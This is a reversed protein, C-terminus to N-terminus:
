ENNKIRKTLNINKILFIIILIIPLVQLKFRITTGLNGQSPIVYFMLWAVLIFFLIKLPKSYFILKLNFLIYKLFLYLLITNEIASLLAFPNRVEYLMPRFLATFSNPIFYYLYDSFNNITNTEVASNGHSFGKSVMNMTSFVQDFSAINFMKMFEHLLIYIFPLLIILILINKISNLKTYYLGMGVVMILPYWSRIFSALFIALIIMFIYLVKVKYLLKLNFYIFISMVFLNLPDKGLISSWFLLSPLLFIWYIFSDQKFNIQINENIVILLYSKYFIILAFFGILSDKMKLSYYSDGVIYSFIYNFHMINNSSQVGFPHAQINYLAETYYLASDLVRGYEQLIMIFLTVFGKIIWFILYKPLFLAIFFTFIIYVLLGLVLEYYPNPIINYWERIYTYTASSLIDFNLLIVFIYLVVLFSITYILYKKM